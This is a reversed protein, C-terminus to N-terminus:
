VLGARIQFYNLNVNFTKSLKAKVFGTKPYEHITNGLYSGRFVVYELMQRPTLEPKLEKNYNNVM